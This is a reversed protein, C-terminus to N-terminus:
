RNHLPNPGTNIKRKEDGLVAESDDEGSNEKSSGKAQFPNLNTASGTRFSQSKSYEDAAFSIQFLFLVLLLLWFFCALSMLRM